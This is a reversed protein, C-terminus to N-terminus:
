DLEKVLPEKPPPPKNSKAKTSGVIRLDLGARKHENSNREDGQESARIKDLNFFKQVVDTKEADLASIKHSKQQSPMSTGQPADLGGPADVVPIGSAKIKGENPAEENGDPNEVDFVGLGIEFEVDGPKARRNKSESESGSSGSDSDSDSSDGAEVSPSSDQHGKLSARLLDLRLNNGDGAVDFESKQGSRRQGQPLLPRM